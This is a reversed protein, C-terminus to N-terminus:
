VAQLLVMPHSITTFLMLNIGDRSATQRKSTPDVKNATETCTPNRSSDLYVNNTYRVSYGRALGREANLATRWACKGAAAKQKRERSKKTPQKV